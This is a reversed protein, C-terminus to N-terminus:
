HCGPPEHFREEVPCNGVVQKLGRPYSINPYGDLRMARVAAILKAPDEHEIAATRVTKGDAVVETLEAVCGQVHYRARTKNVRVSQIRPSASELADLLDDLSLASGPIATDPLELAARLRAITDAALPFPAEIDPAM